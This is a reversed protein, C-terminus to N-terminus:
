TYFCYTQSVHYYKKTYPFVLLSDNRQQHGWDPKVELIYNLDSYAKLETTNFHLRITRWGANGVLRPTGPKPLTKSYDKATVIHLLFTPSPYFSIM